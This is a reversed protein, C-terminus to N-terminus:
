AADARQLDHRLPYAEGAFVHQRGLQRRSDILLPARLNLSFRAGGPDPRVTVLALAVLLPWEVGLEDCAQRLDDRGIPGQDPDLPLVLFALEPEDISQLLKLAVQRDPLDALVFRCCDAFGLLGAPFTVLRGPDLRIEGFRTVLSTPLDPAPAPRPPAQDTPLTALETM